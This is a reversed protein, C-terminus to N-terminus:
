YRRFESWLLPDINNDVEDFSDCDIEFLNRDLDFVRATYGGPHAAIIEFLVGNIRLQQCYSLFNKFLHYRFFIRGTVAAGSRDHLIRLRVDASSSPFVLGDEDELFGLKEKYFSKLDSLRESVIFITIM